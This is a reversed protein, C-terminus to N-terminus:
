MLSELFDNMEPTDDFEVEEDTFVPELMGGSWNFRANHLRYTGNITISEITFVRGVYDLMERVFVDVGYGYHESLYVERELADSSTDNYLGGVTLGYRVKVRDGIQYTLM